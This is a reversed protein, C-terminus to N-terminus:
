YDSTKSRSVSTGGTVLYAVPTAVGKRAPYSQPRGKCGRFNHHQGTSLPNPLSKVVTPLFGSTGSDNGSPQPHPRRPQSKWQKKKELAAKEARRIKRDDDSDSALKDTQHEEVIVWGAEFKDALSILKNRKRVIELYNRLYKSATKTDDDKFLSIFEEIKEALDLNLLYNRGNGKHKFIKAKNIDRWKKELKKTKNNTLQSNKSINAELIVM